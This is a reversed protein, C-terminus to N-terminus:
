QIPQQQIFQQQISSPRNEDNLSWSIDEKIVDALTQTIFYLRAKKVYVEKDRLCDRLIIIDTKDFVDFNKKTNFQQFDDAFVISLTTKLKNLSYYQIRWRIFQDFREKNNSPIIEKNQMNKLQNEIMIINNHIKSFSSEPKLKINDIM